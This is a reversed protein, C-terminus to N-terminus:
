LVYRSIYFWDRARRIYFTPMVSRSQIWRVTVCTIGALRLGTLCSKLSSRRMMRSLATGSTNVLCCHERVTITKLLGMAEPPNVEAKMMTPAEAMMAALPIDVVLPIMNKTVQPAVM